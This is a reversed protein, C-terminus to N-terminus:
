RGSGRGAPVANPQLRGSAPGEAYSTVMGDSLWGGTQTLTVFIPPDTAGAGPAQTNGTRSVSVQIPSSGVTAMPLHLNTVPRATVAFSVEGALGNAGQRTM